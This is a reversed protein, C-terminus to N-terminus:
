VNKEYDLFYLRKLLLPFSFILYFEEVYLHTSFLSSILRILLSFLCALFYVFFPSNQYYSKLTFEWTSKFAIFVFLSFVILGPFGLEGGCRIFTNHADRNIVRYDYDGVFVKFQGDGVGFPHDKLMKIGAKWIILRTSASKDLNEEQGIQKITSIRQFFAPDVLTFFLITSGIISLLFIHFYKRFFFFSFICGILLAFALALFVGRTRTLIIANLSFILSCFTLFRWSIKKKELFLVLLFPLFSAFHAALFNSDKFDPGGFGIDLRGRFFASEPARWAFFGQILLLVAMTLLFFDFQRKNVICRTFLFLFLFVKTIKLANRELNTSDLVEPSIFHSIWLLLIFLLLLIEQIDLRYLKVKNRHFIVGIVLFIYSLFSFRIGLDYLPKGWWQHAPSINYNIIYALIGAFPTKFVSFLWLFCLLFFFLVTKIPM